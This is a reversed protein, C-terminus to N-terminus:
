VVPQNGPFLPLYTNLFYGKIAHYYKQKSWTYVEKRAHKASMTSMKRVKNACTIFFHLM